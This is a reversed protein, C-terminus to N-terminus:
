KFGVAMQYKEFDIIVVLSESIVRRGWGVRTDSLPDDGDHQGLLISICTLSRQRRAAFHRHNPAFRVHRPCRLLSPFSGFAVLGTGYWCKADRLVFTRWFIPCTKFHRASWFRLLSAQM